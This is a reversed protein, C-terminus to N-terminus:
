AYVSGSASFLSILARNSPTATKRRRGVRRTEDPRATTTTTCRPPKSTKEREITAMVTEGEDWLAVAVAPAWNESVSERGSSQCRCRRSPAMSAATSGCVARWNPRAIMMGFRLGGTVVVSLRCAGIARTDQRRQRSAHRELRQHRKIQGVVGRGVLDAPCALATEHVAQLEIRGARRRVGVRAHRIEALARLRELRHLFGAHRQEHVALDSIRRDIQEIAFLHKMSRTIAGSRRSKGASFTTNSCM